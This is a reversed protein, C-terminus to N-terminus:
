NRYAKKKIKNEQVRDLALGFIFTLGLKQLFCTAQTLAIVRGINWLVHFKVCTVIPLVLSPSDLLDSCAVVFFEDYILRVLYPENHQCFLLIVETQPSNLNVLFNSILQVWLNAKAVNVNQFILSKLHSESSNRNGPSKCNKTSANILVWRKLSFVLKYLIQRVQFFPFQHLHLEVQWLSWCCFKFNDDEVNPLFYSLWSCWNKACVHLPVM